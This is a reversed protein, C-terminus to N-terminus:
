HAIQSVSATSVEEARIRQKASQLQEEALLKDAMNNSKLRSIEEELELRHSEMKQIRDRLSREVDEAEQKVHAIQLVTHGVSFGCHKLFVSAIFICPSPICWTITYIETLHSSTLILSYGQSSTPHLQKDM